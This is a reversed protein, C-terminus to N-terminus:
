EPSHCKSLSAGGRYTHPFDEENWTEHYELIDSDIEATQFSYQTGNSGVAKVKYRDSESVEFSSIKDSHDLVFEGDKMHGYNIDTDTFQVYYEPYVKGDYEYGMSATQWTGTILTENKIEETEKSDDAKPALYVSTPGDSGGIIDTNSDNRAGCGLLIM